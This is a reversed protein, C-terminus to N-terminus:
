LIMFVLFVILLLGTAFPLIDSLFKTAPLISAFVLGILFAVTVNVAPNEGLVHTKALIAYVVLSVIILPVVVGIFGTSELLSLGSLFSAM